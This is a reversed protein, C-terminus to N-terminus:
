KKKKKLCFVAYSIYGHSSNLRTSKRDGLEQEELGLVRVLVDEEVDVRRAARDRGAERDVVGHLEDLGVDARKADPLRRAHARQEEGGAVGVLAEAQGVRADHDVLRHAAELALGRVHFDVGLLDQVQALAQVLDQGLVALLRDVHDLAVGLAVKEHAGLVRYLVANDVLHQYGPLVGLDM